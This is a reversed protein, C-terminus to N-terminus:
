AEKEPLKDVINAQVWPTTSLALGIRLPVALRAFNVVAFAEGGLKAMDDQNTFDPWSGTLERFGFFAVPLSVGWFVLEWFVYSIIGAKGSAKVKEMLAKADSIKEEAPADVSKEEEVKKQGFLMAVPAARQPVALRATPAAVRATPKVFTVRLAAAMPLLAFAFFLMNFSRM